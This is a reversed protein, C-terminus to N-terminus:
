AVYGLAESQLDLGSLAAQLKALTEPGGPAAVILVGFPHGAVRDIQGAIIELDIDFKRSLQSLVPTESNAGAFVIRLLARSQDSPTTHIRERVSEPIAGSITDIFTRAIVSKPRTFIAYTDGAEAVGGSDLVILRDAIAKVVHMEHTVMLITVGTLRNVEHLLDLISQTTEPDLASTAEDCLLIDPQMALARAIGVRQKQGGSLEAPYANRKDSLGVLALLEAVRTEIRDRGVGAFEMPLAINGYATRSSLLNFHQFVMGIRRQQARLSEGTLAGIDAEGVIVQGSTPRELGNVLRVLTSKGSGSRGIIGAVAGVPIEFSVNKLAQVAPASGRAAFTKSVDAFRIAPKRPESDNNM